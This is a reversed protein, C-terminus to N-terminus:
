NPTGSFGNASDLERRLLEVVHADNPGEYRVEYVSLQQPAREILVTGPTQQPQTLLAELMGLQIYRAYVYTRTADPEEIYVQWPQGDDWVPRGDRVQVRAIIVAREVVGDQDFDATAERQYQWEPDGATALPLTPDILDTLSVGPTVVSSQVNMRGNATWYPPACDSPLNEGEPIQEAREGFAGGGISVTDGIRAIVEGSSDKIGIEGNAIHLVYDAPWIILFSTGSTSDAVRLCGDENVLEGVLLATLQVDSQSTPEQQPFQVSRTAVVTSSPQITTEEQQVCSM